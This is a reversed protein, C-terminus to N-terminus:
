PRGKGLGPAAVGGSRPGRLGSTERNPGRGENVGDARHLASEGRDGGGGQANARVTADLAEAPSAGDVNRLREAQGALQNLANTRGQLAAVARSAASAPYGRQVLDTLVQIARERGGGRLVVAVDSPGAGAAHAEVIAKLLSASPAAGAFPQAESRARGLSDSLGRVVAVIRAPAVGKALGERVKDILLDQPLGARAAGDIAAHLESASPGLRADDISPADARAASAAVLCAAMILLTRAM